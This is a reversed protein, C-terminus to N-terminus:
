KHNVTILQVSVIDHEVHVATRDMRDILDRIVRDAHKLGMRRVLNDPLKGCLVPDGFLVCALHERIDLFQLSCTFQEGLVSVRIHREVELVTGVLDLRKAQKYGVGTVEIAVVAECTLPAIVALTCEHRKFDAFAGNIKKHLMRSFPTIQLDIEEAPFREHIEIDAALDNSIRPRDFLLVVLIEAKGERGVTHKEVILDNVPCVTLAVVHDQRQVSALLYM